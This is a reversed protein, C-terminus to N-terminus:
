PARRKVYWDESKQGPPVTADGFQICNAAHTTANLVGHSYKKSYAKPPEFRLEGVTPEAFPIGKYYVADQGDSCKGGQLTGADITVSPLAVVAVLFTSLTTSLLLKM